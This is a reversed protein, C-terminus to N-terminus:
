NPPLFNLDFTALDDTTRIEDRTGVLIAITAGATVAGLVAWFYWRAYVPASADEATGRGWDPGVGLIGRNFDVAMNADAPIQAVLPSGTTLIQVAETVRVSLAVGPTLHVIAAAVRENNWLVASVFKHDRATGMGLIAVAGVSALDRMLLLDDMATEMPAGQQTLAYLRNFSKMPAAPELELDMTLEGTAPMDIQGRWTVFGPRVVRLGHKGAPIESVSLPTKGRKKGDLYAVGGDPNSRLVLTSLGARLVAARAREFLIMGAPSLAEGSIVYNPRVLLLERFASAAPEEEGADLWYVGELVRARVLMEADEPSLRDVISSLIGAAEGITAAARHFNFGMHLQEAESFLPRARDLSPANTPEVTLLPAGGVVVNEAGLERTFAKQFALLVEHLEPQSVSNDLAIPPLLWIRSVAGVFPAAPPEPTAAAPQAQTGNAPAGTTPLHCLAIVAITAGWRRSLISDGFRRSLRM